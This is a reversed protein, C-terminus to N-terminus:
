GDNKVETSSRSLAQRIADHADPELRAMVSGHEAIKTLAAELATVRAEAARMRDRATSRDPEGKLEAARCMANLQKIQEDKAASEREVREIEARQSEILALLGSIGSPSCRAIWAADPESIKTDIGSDHEYDPVLVANGYAYPDQGEQYLGGDKGRWLWPGPTVGEMAARWEAVVNETPTTERSM